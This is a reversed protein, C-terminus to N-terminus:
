TYKIIGALIIWGVVVVLISAIVQDGNDLTDSAYLKILYNIIKM